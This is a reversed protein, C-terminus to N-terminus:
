HTEWEIEARHELAALLHIRAQRYDGEARLKEVFALKSKVAEVERGENIQRRRVGESDLKRPPPLTQLKKEAVAKMCSLDYRAARLEQAEYGDPQVIKLRADIDKTFRDALRIRSECVAAADFNSAAFELM